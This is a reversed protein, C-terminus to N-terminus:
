TMLKYSVLLICRITITIMTIMKIMTIMTDQCQKIDRFQIILFDKCLSREDVDSLIM